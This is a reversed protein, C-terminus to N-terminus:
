TTKRWSTLRTTFILSCLMYLSHPAAHFLCKYLGQSCSSGDWHDLSPSLQVHSYHFPNSICCQWSVVLAKRIIWSKRELQPCRQRQHTQDQACQVLQHNVFLIAELPRPLNWRQHFDLWPMSPNSNKLHSAPQFIRTDSYCTRSLGEERQMKQTSSGVKLRRM